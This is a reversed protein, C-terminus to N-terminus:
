KIKKNILKDLYRILLKTWERNGKSVYEFTECIGTYDNIIKRDKVIGFHENSGSYDENIVEEKDWNLLDTDFLWNDDEEMLEIADKLDQLTKGKNLPVEVEQLRWFIISNKM